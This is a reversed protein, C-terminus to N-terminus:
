ENSEVIPLTDLLYNLNQFQSEGTTRLRMGFVIQFFSDCICDSCPGEGGAKRNSLLKSEVDNAKSATLEDDFIFCGNHNDFCFEISREFIKKELV